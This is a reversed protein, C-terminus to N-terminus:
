PATGTGSELLLIASRLEMIHGAKDATVGAAVVADTYAPRPRRVADYAADLASRLETLHVRKVPTVGAVLTPDTWGVVPLGSRVRLAAIRERLEHFHVAKIPTTGPRLPHDTFTSSVVVAVAFQQMASLGGTDTATVTVTARGESVPTVAAQSGAVVATAVAPASSAVRYTLPDGEPDRFASAVDVM